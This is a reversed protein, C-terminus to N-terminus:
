EEALKDMSGRWQLDKPFRQHEFFYHIAKYAQEKTTTECLLEPTVEDGSDIDIYGDEKTFTPDLLRGGQYNEGREHSSFSLIVRTDIGGAIHFKGSEVQIHFHGYRHSDLRDLWSKIQELSPEYLTVYEKLEIDFYWIKSSM